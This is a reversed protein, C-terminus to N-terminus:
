YLYLMLGFVQAVHEVDPVEPNAKFFATECM